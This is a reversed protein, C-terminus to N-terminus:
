VRVGETTLHDIHWSAALLAALLADSHAADVTLVTTTDGPGPPTVVPGGPLRDPLPRRGGSVAIRVRARPEAKGESSTRHEYAAGPAVAPAAPEYAGSAEVRTAREYAGPAVAPTALEHAEVARVRGSDVAYVADAEGALRRPDHDVFVITAGAARRERVAADLEARAGTDLGTWAEDLVLLAPDALLAQAVAVKQSTGKSLEAMATGAHEAAGFRELWEGAGTRAAARGLGQIRGLHVLYDVATFPLAVPFREPVYATRAPRGTVRGEGPADVGAVVRLLTSKGTGNSGVVRVLTAAPLDLDVERLVWPGRLGHRRGVRELRM